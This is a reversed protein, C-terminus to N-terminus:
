ESVELPEGCWPCKKWTPLVAGECNDCYETTHTKRRATGLTDPEQRKNWSYAAGGENDAFNRTRAGCSKDKCKVFYIGGSNRKMEAESGCFPCPLLKESM